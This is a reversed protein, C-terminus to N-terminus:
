ANIRVIVLYRATLAGAMPIVLTNMTKGTIMKGTIMKGTIMKGTMMKGTIKDDTTGVAKGTLSEVFLRGVLIVAVEDVCLAM